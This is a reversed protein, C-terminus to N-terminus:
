RRRGPRREGAGVVRSEDGQVLAQGRQMGVDSRHDPSGFGSKRPRLEGRDVGDDDAGVVVVHVDHAALCRALAQEDVRGVLVLLRSSNHWASSTFGHRRFGRGSPGCGPRARPGRPPSGPRRDGRGIGRHQRGVVVDELVLRHELDAPQAEVRDGRRAVGRARHAELHLASGQQEGAVRQERAPGAVRLKSCLSKSM